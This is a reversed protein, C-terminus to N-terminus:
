GVHGDRCSVVYCQRPTIIDLLPVAQLCWIIGFLMPASCHQRGIVRCLDYVSESYSLYLTISDVSKSVRGDRVSVSHCHHLTLTDVSSVEYYCQRPKIIDRLIIAFLMPAACHQRGIVRCLDYVSVSYSLCLTISDVSKSVRGDRVSVSYCPHLTLTDVSSVVYCQRPTISDLLPV